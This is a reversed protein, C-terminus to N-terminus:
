LVHDKSDVMPPNDSSVELKCHKKQVTKKKLMFLPHTLFLCMRKKHEDTSMM